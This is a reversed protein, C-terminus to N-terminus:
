DQQFCLCEFVNSVDSSTKYFNSAASYFSVIVLILRYLAELSFHAQVTAFRSDLGEDVIFRSYKLGYTLKIKRHTNLLM